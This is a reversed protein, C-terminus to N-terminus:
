ARPSRRAGDVSLRRSLSALVLEIADPAVRADVADAVLVTLQDAMAAAGVDPVARRATGEADAALDALSQLSTRM